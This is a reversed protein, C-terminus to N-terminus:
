YRGFARFTFTFTSGGTVGRDRNRERTWAAGGVGDVRAQGALHGAQEGVVQGAGGLAAAVLRGAVVGELVDETQEVVQGPVGTGGMWVCRPNVM